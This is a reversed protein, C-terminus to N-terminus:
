DSFIDPKTEGAHWNAPKRKGSLAKKFAEPLLADEEKSGLITGNDELQRNFSEIADQVAKGDM